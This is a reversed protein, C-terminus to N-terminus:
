KSTARGWGLTVLFGAAAGRASIGLLFTSPNLLWGDSGVLQTAEMLETGERLRPKMMELPTIMPGAEPSTILTVSDHRYTSLRFHVGLLHQHHRDWGAEEGQEEVAEAVPRREKQSGRRVAQRAWSRAEQKYM